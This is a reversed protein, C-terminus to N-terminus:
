SSSWRESNFSILNVLYVFNRVITQVTGNFQLLFEPLDSEKWKDSNIHVFTGSWIVIIELFDNLNGWIIDSIGVHVLFNGHFGDCALTDICNNERIIYIIEPHDESGCDLYFRIFTVVYYYSFVVVM